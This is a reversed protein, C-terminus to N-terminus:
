AGGGDRTRANDTGRAADANRQGGLVTTLKRLAEAKKAREEDPSPEPVGRAASLRDIRRRIEEPMPVGTLGRAQEAKVEAAYRAEADERKRTARERANEAAAKRIAPIPNGISEWKDALQDLAATFDADCLDATRAVILALSTPATDARWGFLGLTATLAALRANRKGRDIDAKPRLLPAGDRPLDPLSV